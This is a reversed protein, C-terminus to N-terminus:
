ANFTGFDITSSGVTFVGVQYYAFYSYKYNLIQSEPDALLKRCIEKENETSAPCDLLAQIKKKKEPTRESM